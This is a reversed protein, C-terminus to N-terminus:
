SDPHRVVALDAGREALEGWPAQTTLVALTCAAFHRLADLQPPQEEARALSAITALEAATAPIGPAHGVVLLTQVADSVQEIAAMIDDVGAGYLEELYTTPATIGTAALTERTRVAISCLVADM